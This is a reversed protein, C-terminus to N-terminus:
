RTLVVPVRCTSIWFGIMILVILLTFARAPSFRNRETRRAQERLAEEDAIRKRDADTLSRSTPAPPQAESVAPRLQVSEVKMGTAAVIRRAQDVTSAEVATSSIDGSAPDSVRVVFTFTQRGTSESESVEFDDPAAFLARIEPIDRARTWKTMGKRGLLDDLTVKGTRVLSALKDTSYPGFKQEGRRMFWEPANGGTV